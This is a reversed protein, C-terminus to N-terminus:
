KTPKPKFVNIGAIQLLGSSTMYFIDPDDKVQGFYFATNANPQTPSFLIEVERVPGDTRGPEGLVIQITLFPTKLAQLADTRDVAWDHVTFRSLNGALQDAKVRDIEATVDRGGRNAKWEATVPNYDLVVPALAGQALSIRRLAFTTFRLAGLGKWKIGDPPISPLLSADIRYIFPESDYKAFFQTSEANHGFMLKIPKYRQPTWTITQFPDNLGYPALDAATDAAFDLIEYTNLANLCRAVRDGNAADWKGHRQLYWSGGENRLNVEPHTKSNITLFDLHEGDIQALLHDRLENPTVWLSLLNKAVVTFSPKRYATTATTTAQKEDAPKKLTFEYTRGRTKSEITVKIEDAHPTKSSELATAHAADKAETIEINLIASLLETIREKSGRTKLPKELQWPYHENERALTIQGSPQTLTISTIVEAPLRLLKPDRWSLAPIQLVAPANSKALYWATEGGHEPIGIYLSNEVVGPSGFWCEYLPSDASFLRVKFRPKDLGTKQWEADDFEERHIREIWEVEHLTIILAAVKEPDALDEFPQQLKWAAGDRSFNLPTNDATLVEVRTVKEKEFRTPGRRVNRIDIASPFYREIGLIIAGMAAVLLFLVLTTRASM